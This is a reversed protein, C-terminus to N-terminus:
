FKPLRDALVKPAFPVLFSLVVLSLVVGGLVKLFSIAKDQM